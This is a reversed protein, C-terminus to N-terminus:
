AKGSDVHSIPLGPVLLCHPTSWTAENQLQMAVQFTISLQLWSVVSDGSTSVSISAHVGCEVNVHKNM